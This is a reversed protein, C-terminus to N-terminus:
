RIRHNVTRNALDMCFEIAAPQIRTRLDRLADIAIKNASIQFATPM